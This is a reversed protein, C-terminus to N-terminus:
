VVTFVLWAWIQICCAVLNYLLVGGTQLGFASCFTPHGYVVQNGEPIVLTVPLLLPQQVHSQTWPIASVVKAKEPFYKCINSFFLPGFKRPTRIWKLQVSTLTARGPYILTFHPDNYGFIYVLRNMTKFHCSYPFDCESWDYDQKQLCQMAM